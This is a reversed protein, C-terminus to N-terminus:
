ENNGGSDVSGDGGGRLVRSPYFKTPQQQSQINGGPKGGPANRFNKENPTKQNELDKKVQNVVWGGDKMTHFDSAYKKGSSGKFSDLKDLMLNFVEQGHKALLGDHQEQTLEVLERFKIKLSVPLSPTHPQKEEEKKKKRIGEQEDGKPRGETAGRDGKRDGKRDNDTDSNIDYITLSCLEVLTGVTTSRTARETARKEHNELNLTSKSFKKSKRTRCTEVIKIHGREVLVKKANRYEKETLGYSKYDGLHCQGVTLGDPNGNERRAREAIITLLSFAKSHKRVLYMAEESPIFKIFREAM